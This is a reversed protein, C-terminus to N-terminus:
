RTSRPRVGSDSSFRASTWFVVRDACGIFDCRGPNMEHEFSGWVWNPNQKTSVHRSSLAYETGDSVDTYYLGRVKEKSDLEPLWTMLDDVPTWDGKVSIATRPMQINVKDFAKARGAGTNFGNQTIFDWQPKNRKTEEAICGTAPFNGTAAGPPKACAVDIPQLGGHGDTSQLSLQLKKDADPSPWVPSANFTDHDSAWTEFIVPSTQGPSFPATFKVFERWIYEDSMMTTGDVPGQQARIGAPTDSMAAAGLLAFSTALTATSLRSMPM